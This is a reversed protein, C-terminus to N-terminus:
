IIIEEAIIELENKYETLKGTIEIQTGREINLTEEKFIIIPITSASDRINLIYLGPTERASIVTGKIKVMTEIQKKGLDNIDTLEVESYESLLLILFTGIVSIILSTKFLKSDQM